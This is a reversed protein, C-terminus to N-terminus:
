FFFCSNKSLELQEFIEPMKVNRFPVNKVYGNIYTCAMYPHSGKKMVFDWELFDNKEM